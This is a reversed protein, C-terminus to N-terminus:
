ALALAARSAFQAFRGPPRRLHEPVVGLPQGGCRPARRGCHGVLEILPRAPDLAPAQGPQIRVQLLPVEGNALAQGGEDAAPLRELSALDYMCAYLTYTGAPLDEPLALTYEDHIVEGREWFSTPYRGQQPQSDVQPGVRNEADRLQISVTYDKDPQGTAAWNLALHLQWAEGQREAAARGGPLRIAPGFQVGGLAEVPAPLETGRVKISALRLSNGLEAGDAGYVAVPRVGDRQFFSVEVWGIRRQPEDSTVPILAEECFLYGPTWTDTTLTGHGPFRQVEGLLERRGGFVQVALTYEADAQALARWALSVRLKGGPDVFRDEIRYGVLEVFDGMRVRVPTYAAAQAEDLHAPPAYYPQIYLSPTLAALTGLAGGVVAWGPWRVRAPLLSSWGLALLVSLAPLAPLLYRGEVVARGRGVRFLLMAAVISAAVLSLAGIGLAQSRGPRQWLWVVLGLLALACWIAAAAYSAGPLRVNGWGFNAWLAQLGEGLAPLVLDARFPKGGLLPSLVKVLDKLDRSGGFLGRGGSVNHAYWWGVVLAGAALGAVLGVIVWRRTERGARAIAAVLGIAVVPLLVLGNSKSLLALGGTVLLGALDLARPREAMVVRVLLWTVAAASATVMIDNNIVATSFRFHPWFVLLLAAGWRVWPQRPSLLRATLFTCFLALAGLLVSVWRALHIALVTGHYPWGEVAADHITRNWGGAEPGWWMYPNLRPEVGDDVNVFSVPIAALIYYLPPQHSEDNEAVLKEGVPPLRHETAMYRVVYYHGIEDYSEWIPIVVSWYVGLAVHVLLLAAVAWPEWSRKLNVRGASVGAEAGM